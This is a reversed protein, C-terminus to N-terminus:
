QILEQDLLSEHRLVFTTRATWYNGYIERLSKKNYPHHIFLSNGIVKPSDESTLMGDGLFIGAHNVHFTRGLTFLIVDHKRIGDTVPVFGEKSFNDLYLSKHEELTWWEDIRDYDNLSINLERFYYDRVISYCDQLGHHYSRGILPLKYNSPEYIDIESEVDPEYSCIIWAKNHNNMQVLDPESPKCTGNPHSHVYALINGKAEAKVLDRPDIYFQDESESLNKCPIYEKNPTSGEVSIVIGCSERPYEVRAHDIIDEKIKKTLIM